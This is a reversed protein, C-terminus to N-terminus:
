ESVNIVLRPGGNNFADVMALNIDLLSYENRVLNKVIEPKKDLFNKMRPIDVSPDSDKEGIGIIKKGYLLEKLDLECKQGNPLNSVIFATGNIALSDIGKKLAVSSGATVVCFSQHNPWEVDSEVLNIPLNMDRFIKINESKDVGTIEYGLSQLILATAMGIGGLGVVIGSEGFFIQEKYINKIVGSTTLLACGLLPYYNKVLRDSLKTLRNEPFVGRRIFTACEGANIGEGSDIRKYYPASGLSQTKNKIWSVIVFDGIMLKSDKSSIELIEGLAEHGFCHPLYKDKGRTGAWEGIQTGCIATKIIKVRVQGPLLEPDNLEVLDIDKKHAVLVAAINKNM